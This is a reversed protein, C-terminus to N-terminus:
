LEEERLVSFPTMLTSLVTITSGKYSDTWTRADCEEDPNFIRCYEGTQLEPNSYFYTLKSLYGTIANAKGGREEIVSMNRSLNTEM